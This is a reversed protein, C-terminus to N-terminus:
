KEGDRHRRVVEERDAQGAPQIALLLPEDFVELRLVADEAFQVSGFAETIGVLLAAQEGFFGLGRAALKQGSNFCDDRGVREEAPMALQDGALERMWTVRRSPRFRGLLGGSEDDAQGALVRGGAVVAQLSHEGIKAM